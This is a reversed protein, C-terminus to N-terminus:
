FHYHYTVGANLNIYKVDDMDGFGM